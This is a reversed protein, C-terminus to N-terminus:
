DPVVDYDFNHPNEGISTILSPLDTLNALSLRTMWSSLIEDPLPEFVNPWREYNKIESNKDISPILSPTYNPLNLQPNSATFYIDLSRQKSKNQPESIKKIRKM